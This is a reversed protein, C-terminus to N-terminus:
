AISELHELRGALLDEREHQFEQELDKIDGQCKQFAQYLKKIKKGETYPRM